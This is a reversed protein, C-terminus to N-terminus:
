REEDCAEGVFHMRNKELYEKGIPCERLVKGKRSYPSYLLLVQKRTAGEGKGGVVILSGWYVGRFIQPAWETGIVNILLKESEGEITFSITRLLGNINDDYQNVMLDFKSPGDVIKKFRSRAHRSSQIM